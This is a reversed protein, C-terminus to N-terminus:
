FLALPHRVPYQAANNPIVQKGIWTHRNIVIPGRLNVSAKNNGQLTVIAVILADSRVELELFEVDQEEFDPEYDPVVVEPPLVLFAHRADELMQFWRFPGEEPNSLLSYNKVRELGLLGYPLLVVDNSPTTAQEPEMLELTNMGNKDYKYHDRLLPCAVPNQALFLVNRPM